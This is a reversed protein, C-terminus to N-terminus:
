WGARGPGGVRRGGPRQRCRQEVAAVPIAGRWVAGGRWTAHPGQRQTQSGGHGRRWRERGSRVAGLQMPSKADRACGASATDGGGERGTMGASGPGASAAPRADMVDKIVAARVAGRQLLTRDDRACDATASGGGSEGGTMGPAPGADAVDKTVGSRVAGRQVFSKDGRAFDATTSAGNHENGTTGVSGTEACASARGDVDGGVEARVAGHQMLSKVGFACDTTAPGGGDGTGSMGASGARACAPLGASVGAKRVGAGAASGGGACAGEPLRKMPDQGRNAILAARDQLRMVRKIKRARAIAAKWPALAALKARAPAVEAKRGRLVLQPARAFRGRADRLGNRPAHGV